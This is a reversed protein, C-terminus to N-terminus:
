TLYIQTPAWGAHASRRADPETLGQHVTMMKTKTAIPQGTM